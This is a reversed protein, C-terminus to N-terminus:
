VPRLLGINKRITRGIWGGMLHIPAKTFLPEIFGRYLFRKRTRFDDREPMGKFLIDAWRYKSPVPIDTQKRSAYQRLLAFGYPEIGTTGFLTFFRSWSFTPDSSLVEIEDWLSKVLGYGSHVLSHCILITLADEASPHICVNSRHHGRKFLDVTPLHFREERNLQHHLELQIDHKGNHITFPQEFFWPDPPGITFLPHGTLKTITENFHHPQVLLDIDVMTRVPISGALSASLLYAGKIPMYPIGFTSFINDLHRLANGLQLQRFIWARKKSDPNLCRM